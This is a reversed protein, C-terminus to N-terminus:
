QSRVAALSFPKKKKKKLIKGWILRKNVSFPPLPVPSPLFCSMHPPTQSLCVSCNLRCGRPFSCGLWDLVPGSRCNVDDSLRRHGPRVSVQVFMFVCALDAVRECVLVLFSVAISRHSVHAFVFMDFVLCDVSGFISPNLLMIVCVLTYCSSLDAVFISANWCTHYYHSCVCVPWYSAEDHWQVSWM